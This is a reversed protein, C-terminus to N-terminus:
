RQKGTKVFNTVNYGIEEDAIKFTRDVYVRLPYGYTTQYSITVADASQISQRAFQFMAAVSKPAVGTTDIANSLGKRISLKTSTPICFCETEVTFDYNKIRLRNWKAENKTLTRLLEARETPGLPKPETREVTAQTVAPVCVLMATLLALSRLRFSFTHDM